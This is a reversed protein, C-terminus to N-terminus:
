PGRLWRELRSGSIGSVSPAAAAASAAAKAAERAVSKADERQRKILDEVGQCAKSEAEWAGKVSELMAQLAKDLEGKPNMLGQTVGQRATVRNSIAQLVHDHSWLCRKHGTNVLKQGLKGPDKDVWVKLEGGAEVRITYGTVGTRCGQEEASRVTAKDELPVHGLSAVWAMHALRSAGRLLIRAHRDNEVLFGDHGGGIPVHTGPPHPAGTDQQQACADAQSAAAVGAQAGAAAAQSCATALSAEMAELQNMLAQHQEQQVAQLRGSAAVVASAAAHQESPFVRARQEAWAARARGFAAAEEIAAAAELEMAAECDAAFQQARTARVHAAEAAALLLKLDGRAAAAQENLQRIEAEIRAREDHVLQQRRVAEAHEERLRNAESAAATERQRQRGAPVTGLQKFDAALEAQEAELQQAVEGAAAARCEQAGQGGSALVAETEEGAQIQHGPHAYGPSVHEPRAIPGASEPAAAAAKCCPRALAVLLAGGAM